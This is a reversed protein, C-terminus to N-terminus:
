LILAIVMYFCASTFNSIWKDGFFVNRDQNVRVYFMDVLFYDAINAFSFKYVFFLRLSMYLVLM